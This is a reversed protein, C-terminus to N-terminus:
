IHKSFFNHINSIIEKKGSLGTKDLGLDSHNKCVMVSSNLATPDEQTSVGGHRMRHRWKGLGRRNYWGKVERHKQALTM